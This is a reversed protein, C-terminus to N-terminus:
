PTVAPSSKADSDSRETDLSRRWSPADSGSRLRAADRKALIEQWVREDEIKSDALAPAAATATVAHLAAGVHGGPLHEM